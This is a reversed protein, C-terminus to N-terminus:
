YKRCFVAREPTWFGRKRLLTCMFGMVGSLSDHQLNKMFESMKRFFVKVILSFHIRNAIMRLPRDNM